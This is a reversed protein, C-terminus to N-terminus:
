NTLDVFTAVIIAGGVGGFSEQRSEIEGAPVIRYGFPM